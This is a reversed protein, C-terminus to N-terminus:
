RFTYPHYLLSNATHGHVLVTWPKEENCKSIAERQCVLNLWWCHRFKSLNIHGDPPSCRERATLLVVWQWWGTGRRHIGVGEHAWTDPFVAYRHGGNGRSFRCLVHDYQSMIPIYLMNQVTQIYTGWLQLARNWYFCLM